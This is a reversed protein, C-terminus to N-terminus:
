PVATRAVPRWSEVEDIFLVGSAGLKISMAGIRVQDLNTTDSDVGTATGALAGDIWLM